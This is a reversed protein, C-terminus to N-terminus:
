QTSSGVLASTETEQPEIMASFRDRPLSGITLKEAEFNLWHNVMSIGLYSEAFPPPGGGSNEGVTKERVAKKVWM